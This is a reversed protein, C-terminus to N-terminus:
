EHELAQHLQPDGLPLLPRLRLQWAFVALWLGGIGIPVLINMWHLHFVGAPSFEPVTVWYLDLARVVLMFAALLGLAKANRKLDQSLLLFFPIFFHFLILALGVWMWGGHWRRLYWPIEHTLNGAWILLLQSFSLYAWIMVFTLLLKGLDHLHRPGVIESLPQRSALLVLIVIAFAMASLLQGGIVLLGFITSYWRPELSMIWDVSALSMTLSYIVLGPGSLLRMKRILSADNDTDQRQSWSSFRFALLLWVAFYVASRILFFPVNLYQLQEQSLGTRNVWSYISPVGFALPIFLLAMLAITRSASELPRRIVMGWAGSTLHHLMMIAMCGLGMGTWYLFGLLYSQFFQVRSFFAGVICIAMAIAGVWFARWQMRRIEEGPVYTLSPM